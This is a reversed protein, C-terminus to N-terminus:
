ITTLIDILLAWVATPRQSQFTDPLWSSWVSKRLYDRTCIWKSCCGATFDIVTIDDENPRRSIISVFSFSKIAIRFCSRSWGQALSGVVIIAQLRAEEQESRRGARGDARADPSKQSAIVTSLPRLVGSRVWIEKKEDHGIIENKLARLATIRTAPSSLTPLQDPLSPSPPRAM